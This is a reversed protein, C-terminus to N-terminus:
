TCLRRRSRLVLIGTASCLLAFAVLLWGSAAPVGSTTISTGVYHDVDDLNIWGINEGWVYGRFRGAPCDFRAQQGFSTLEARTDCNIWGVNEGWAMGYLDGNTDINVGFDTDDNNGYPGNGNGANIFGVNEAWINGSLFDPSVIVGANGGDGGDADRWNTWGINEGWAWKHVPDINSQAMGSSALAVNVIFVLIIRLRM